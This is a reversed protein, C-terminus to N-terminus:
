SAGDLSSVADRRELAPGIVEGGAVM